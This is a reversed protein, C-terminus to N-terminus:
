ICTSFYECWLRFLTEFLFSQRCLWTFYLGKTLSWKERKKKKKQGERRAPHGGGARERGVFRIIIVHNPFRQDQIVFLLVGNGNFFHHYEYRSVIRNVRFYKEPRTKGAREEPSYSKWHDIRGNWVDAVRSSSSTVRVCVYVSRTIGSRRPIGTELTRNLVHALFDRASFMSSSKSCVENKTLVLGRFVVTSRKM